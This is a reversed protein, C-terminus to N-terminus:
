SSHYISFKIQDSYAQNTFVVLYFLVYIFAHIYIWFFVLALYKQFALISMSNKYRLMSSFFNQDCVFSSLDLQFVLIPTVIFHVHNQYTPIAKQWIIAHM